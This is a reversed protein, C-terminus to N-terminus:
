KTTKKPSSVKKTSKPKSVKKGTTAKKTATSKPKKPTTAKKVKPQAVKKTATTTTTAKKVGATKTGTTRKSKTQTTRKTKAANTSKPTASTKPKVVKTQKPKVAAATSTTTTTASNNTDAITAVKKASKTGASKSRARKKTATSSTSSSTTKKPKISKKKTPKNEGTSALKFSGSAGNGKTQKFYKAKVGNKLALKLHQNAQTPDLSYNALVFKLIAARSSGGRDNLSKLAAKIMESYKPHTVVHTSKGKTTKKQQKKPSVNTNNATQVSSVQAITGETMKQHYTRFLVNFYVFVLLFFFCLNENVLAVFM